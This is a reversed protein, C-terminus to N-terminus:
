ATAGLGDLPLRGMKEAWLEAARGDAGPRDAALTGEIELHALGHVM